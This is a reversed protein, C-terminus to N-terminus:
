KTVSASGGAFVQRVVAGTDIVVLIRVAASERPYGISGYVFDQEKM